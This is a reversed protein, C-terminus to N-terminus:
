AMQGHRFRRYLWVALVALGILVVVAITICIGNRYEQEWTSEPM